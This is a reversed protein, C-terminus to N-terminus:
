SSTGVQGYQLSRVLLEQGSSTSLKAPPVSGPPRKGISSPTPPKSTAAPTALSGEAEEAAKREIEEM